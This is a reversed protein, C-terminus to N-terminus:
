MEFCELEMARTRTSEKLSITIHNNPLNNQSIAIKGINASGQFGTSQREPLRQPLQTIGGTAMIMRYPVITKLFDISTGNTHCSPFSCILSLVSLPAFTRRIPITCISHRCQQSHPSPIRLSTTSVTSTSDCPCTRSFCFITSRKGQPLDHGCGLVMGGTRTM